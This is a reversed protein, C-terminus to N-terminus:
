RIRLGLAVSGWGAAHVGVRSCFFFYCSCCSLLFAVSFERETSFFFFTSPSFRPGGILRWRPVSLAFYTGSSVSNPGMSLCRCLSLSLSLSSVFPSRVGLGVFLCGCRRCRSMITIVRAKKNGRQPLVAGGFAWGFYLRDVLFVFSSLAFFSFARDVIIGSRPM